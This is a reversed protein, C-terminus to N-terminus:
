NSLEKVKQQSKKLKSISKLFSKKLPLVSSTTPVERLKAETTIAIGLDPKDIFAMVGLNPSYLKLISDSFKRPTRLYQNKLVKKEKKKNIKTVKSLMSVKQKSEFSIM